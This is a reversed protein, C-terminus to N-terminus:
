DRTENDIKEGPGEKVDEKQAALENSLDRLNKKTQLNSREKEVVRRLLRVREGRSGTQLLQQFAVQTAEMKAHMDAQIRKTM